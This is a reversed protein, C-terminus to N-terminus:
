ELRPVREEAIPAVETLSRARHLSYIALVVGALAAAVGLEVAWRRRYHQRMRTVRQRVRPAPVEQEAAIHELKEGDAERLMWELTRDAGEGAPLEREAWRLLDRAGLPASDASVEDSLDGDHSVERRRRRYHDVIKNKAIAFLWREVEQRTAPARRAALADTLTTQVVDEAEAAAMRAAVFGLLRARLAPDGLVAGLEFDEDGIAMPMAM